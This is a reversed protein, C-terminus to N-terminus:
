QKSKGFLEKLFADEKRDYVMRGGIMVQEIWTTADLPDGSLLLLDARAGPQIGGAKGGLGLMQAPHATVAAIADKRELGHKEAEAAVQWLYRADLSRTDIQFAFRVGAKRYIVPLVRRAVEGTVPDEEFFVTGAPLVVPLGAKAIQPAARWAGAGVVLVAKIKHEQILEIARIVDSADPCYVFATLRQAFLDQMAKHELPVEDPVDRKAAQAEKKREEWQALYERERRLFERLRQMHGMRSQGGVPQLSMKLGVFREILMEEVTIGVPKVITGTGGFRTANGPLVLVSTVGNRLADRFFPRFPDIADFTSLFPVDPMFENARELGESTHALVFGPMIVRDRADIVEANWPIAVKDEPGLSTITGDEILIVAGPIEAGTGTITMKSKIATVHRVAAGPAALVCACVAAAAWAFTTRRM